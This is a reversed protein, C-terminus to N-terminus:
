RKSGSRATPTNKRGPPPRWMSRAMATVALLFRGSVDLAARPEADAACQSIGASERWCSRSRSRSTVYDVGGAELRARYARDRLGTMFIVPV